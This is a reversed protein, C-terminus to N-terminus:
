KGNGPKKMASRLKMHFCPTTLTSRRRPAAAPTAATPAAAPAFNPPSPPPEFQWRTEEEGEGETVSQTESDNNGTRRRLGHGRQQWVRVPWYNRSCHYGGVEANPLTVVVTPAKHTPTRRTAGRETAIPTYASTLLRRVPMLRSASIHEGLVVSPSVLGGGVEAM